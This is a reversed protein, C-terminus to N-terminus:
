LNIINIPNIPNIVLIRITEDDDIYQWGLEGCDADLIPREIFLRLLVHHHPGRWRLHLQDPMDIISVESAVALYEDTGDVEQIFSVDTYSIEVANM